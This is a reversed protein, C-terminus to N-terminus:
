VQLPQEDAIDVIGVVSHGAGTLADVLISRNRVADIHAGVVLVKSETPLAPEIYLLGLDEIVAARPVGLTHAVVHGLVNDDADYWSVVAGVGLDGTAQAITEGLRTVLKPNSYVDVWSTDGDHRRLTEAADRISENATM